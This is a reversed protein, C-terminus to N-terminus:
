KMVRPRGSQRGNDRIRGLLAARSGPERMSADRWSYFQGVLPRQEVTASACVRTMRGNHDRIGAKRGGRLRPHSGDIVGNQTSFAPDDAFPQSVHRFYQYTTAGVMRKAM